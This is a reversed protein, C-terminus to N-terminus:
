PKRRKNGNPDIFVAGSPLANYDEDTTIKVEGGPVQYDEPAARGARKKLSEIYVPISNLKQDVTGEEDFFQPTLERIKQAAEDKNVGAGTAARLLSESLSDAAQVFKQRDGSRVAGKLDSPALSELIGPKIEGPNNQKVLLMNKYANDAQSLWGQAKREDESPFSAKGTASLGGVGGDGTLKNQKDFNFRERSLGLSQAAINSNRMSVARSADANEDNIRQGNLTIDQARMQIAQQAQQYEQKLQEEMTMASQKRREFEVPDYNPLMGQEAEPGLIQLAQQKAAQYTPEDRVGAMLQTITRYLGLQKEIQVKKAEAEAAVQDNQGKLLGPIEAGYGMQAAQGAMNQYDLGGNKYNEAYLRNLDSDRKAAQNDAMLKNRGSALQLGAMEMEAPNMPIDIQPQRGALAIRADIPM